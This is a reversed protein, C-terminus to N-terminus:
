GFQNTKKSNSKIGSNKNTPTPPNATKLSASATANSDKPINTEENKKKVNSGTSRSMLTKLNLLSLM